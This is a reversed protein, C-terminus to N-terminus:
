ELLAEDCHQRVPCARCRGRINHSRHVVPAVRGRRVAAALREVERELEPTLLVEFTQTAYRVYGVRSARDAFAARLAVLYVGIQVRDSDYLRQSRRTPKVELPVILRRNGVDTELLYDPKGCIGLNADRLILSSEPGVDSAVVSSTGAGRFDFGTKRRLFALTVPIALAALLSALGLLFLLFRMLSV